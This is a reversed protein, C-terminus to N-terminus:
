EKEGKRVKKQADCADMAGAFYVDLLLNRAETSRNRANAYTSNLLIRTLLEDKRSNSMQATYEEIIGWLGEIIIQKEEEDAQRNKLVASIIDLVNRHRFAAATEEEEDVLDSDLKVKECILAKALPNVKKGTFDSNDDTILADEEMLPNLTELLKSTTLVDQQLAKFAEYTQSPRITKGNYLLETEERYYREPTKGPRIRWFRIAANKLGTKADDKDFLCGYLISLWLARAANKDDLSDKAHGIMPLYQRSHWRIDLHPTCGEDPTNYRGIMMKNIRSAYNAYFVGANYEDESFKPIETLRVSYLGRYCDFAYRSYAKHARVDSSFSTNTGFYGSVHAAGTGRLIEAEVDDSLGWYVSDLTAAAGSDAGHATNPAHYDVSVLYPAAKTSVTSLIERRRKDIAVSSIPSYDGAAEKEKKLQNEIEKELAQYISIDLVDANEEALMQAYYPIVQTRFIDSVVYASRQNEEKELQADRKRDRGERRKEAEREMMNMAGAYVAELLDDYISSSEEEVSSGAVRQYTDEMEAASALVYTTAPKEFAYKDQLNAIRVEVEKQVNEITGFVREYYRILANIKELVENYVMVKLRAPYYSELNDLQNKFNRYFKQQIDLHGLLKEEIVESAKEKKDKTSKKYDEERYENTANLCVDLDKKVKDRDAVLLERVAYLLYRAALPHVASSEGNENKRELLSLIHHETVDRRDLTAIADPVIAEAMGRYMANTREEILDLLSDLAREGAQVNSKAKSKDMQTKKLKSRIIDCSKLKANVEEDKAIKDTIYTEVKKVYRPARWEESESIVTEGNQEGKSYVTEMLASRLFAFSATREDLMKEINEVYTKSLLPLKMTSDKKRLEKANLLEREFDRDFKVWKESITDQTARLACYEVIDDYPYEIRSAGASGYMAEGDTEMRTQILNDERSDLRNQLPSYVQAYTVRAMLDIYDKRDGLERMNRNQKDIFFIFDYPKKAVATMGRDDGRSNLQAFIKKSDFLDDIQISYKKMDPNKSLCIMNIAALEKLAAYANAYMSEEQAADYNGGSLFVDPLAFLGRISIKSFRKDTEGYKKRLYLPVQLFMGSGTGGAFSSVIMVKLGVPRPDGDERTLENIAHDLEVMPTKRRITDSFALRSLVRKQGAGDLMDEDMMLDDDPFWEQWNKQSRLMEGVKANRSTSIIDLGLAEENNGDTDFGIFQIDPDRDGVMRKVAAVVSCGSGGLGIVLTKKGKEMTAM